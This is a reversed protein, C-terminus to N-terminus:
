RTPKWATRRPRGMDGDNIRDRQKRPLNDFGAMIAEAHREAERIPVEERYFLMHGPRPQWKPPPPQRRRRM